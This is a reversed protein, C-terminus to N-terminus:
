EYKELEYYYNFKIQRIIKNFLRKDVTAPKEKSGSFKVKEEWISLVLNHNGPIDIILRSVFGRGIENEYYYWSTIILSKSLKFKINNDSFANRCAENAMQVFDPKPASDNKKSDMFSHTSYNLKIEALLITDSKTISVIEQNNSDKPNDILKNKGTFLPKDNSNDSDLLVKYFIVGTMGISILVIAATLVPKLIFKGSPETNNGGFFFRKLLDFLGTRPTQKAITKQEDILKNVLTNQEEATLSDNGVSNFYKGFLNDIKENYNEM